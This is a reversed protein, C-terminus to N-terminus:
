HIKLFLLHSSTLFQCNLNEFVFYGKEDSITGNILTPSVQEGVSQFLSVNAYPMFNSDDSDKVVGYIKGNIDESETKNRYNPNQSFVCVAICTLFFTLYRIM